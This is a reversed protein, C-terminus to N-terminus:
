EAAEILDIDRKLLENVLSNLEVGKAEARRSLYARVKPDLYIPEDFVAEKRFFKGRVAKSFDYEDKMDSVEHTGQVGEYQARESATAKRASIIRVSASGGDREDFTHVVVLLAANGAQGLTVWRDEGESHEDDYRSLALPDQFVARALAFSVRHKRLNAAAKSADWSFRYTFQEHQAMSKAITDLTEAGVDHV